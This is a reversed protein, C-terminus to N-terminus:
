PPAPVSTPAPPPAPVITAPPLLYGIQFYVMVGESPRESGAGATARGVVARQGLGELPEFVFMREGWAEVTSTFIVDALPRSPALEAILELTTVDDESVEPNYREYWWLLAVVGSESFELDREPVREFGAPLEDDSPFYVSPDNPQPQSVNASSASAKPTISLTLAVAFACALAKKV